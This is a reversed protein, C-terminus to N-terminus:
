DLGFEKKLIEIKPNIEKLRKYKEEYTYILNKKDIIENIIIQVNIQDNKLEDKLFPLFKEFEKELEVKNIQSLVHYEIISNNKLIPFNMKLISAINKEGNSNKISYYKNWASNLDKQNFIKKSFTSNSKKKEQVEKWAKKEKISTLSFSSVGKNKKKLKLPLEITNEPYYKKEILKSPTKINASKKTVENNITKKSTKFFITPILTKKKDDSHISALQMFTLEIFLRKNSSSKFNLDSKNLIDISNLILEKTFFSAQLLLKEKIEQDYELMSHTKADLCILLNRFHSAIGNILQQLDFGKEAIENITLLIEPIDKNIIKTTIDFCISQNLLNLNISVNEETLNSNCFNCMQDFISLADRLAGDAKEAILQLASDEYTINIKNSIKILHKKIDNISIRKFDYVQCRSLITPIIKNKETTALIFIVHKPPEELTKLFANFASTSLMHVEDIIYVKYKGVQPPIRVQDNINRIDDVSNNSAADLEFINYSFDDINKVSNSNIERALIRACTTKGIGRPGCFLLAQALQNNKIANQLTKTITEQGVVDEFVTPRFKLASVIFQDM